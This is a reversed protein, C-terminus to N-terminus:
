HKKSLIPQNTETSKLSTRIWRFKLGLVWTCHFIFNCHSFTCYLLSSRNGAMSRTYLIKPPFFSKSIQAWFQHFDPIAMNKAFIRADFEGHNWKRLEVFLCRVQGNLDGIVPAPGRFFTDKKRYHHHQQEWTRPPNFPSSFVSEFWEIKPPSYPLKNM